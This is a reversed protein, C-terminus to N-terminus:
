LEIETITLLKLYLEQSLELPILNKIEGNPHEFPTIDNALEKFFDEETMQTKEFSM